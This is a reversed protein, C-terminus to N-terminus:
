RSEAIGEVVDNGAVGAVVAERARDAVIRQEAVLVIVGQFAAGALVAHGATEAIVGVDDIDRFVDDRFQAAAAAIRHLVMAVNVSLPLISFRIRPPARACDVAGAADVGVRNEAIAVLVQDRGRRRRCAPRHRQPRPMSVSDPRRRWRSPIQRLRRRDAGPRSRRRYARRRCVAIVREAAADPM